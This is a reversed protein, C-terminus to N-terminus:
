IRWRTSRRDRFVRSFSFPRAQNQESWITPYPKRSRTYFTDLREPNDPPLEFVVFPLLPRPQNVLTIAAIGCVWINFHAFQSASRVTVVAATSITQPTQPVTCIM